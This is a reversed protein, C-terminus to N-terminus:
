GQAAAFFAAFLQTDPGHSPVRDEPHWQVALAFRYGPRELGEVVGDESRASVVLGPAIRAVAQHHRSNVTFSQEGLVTAFVTGALPDVRHVDAVGRQRHFETNPLHQVLDGGFAVNFLQLGRCICLLPLDADLALRLLRLEMADRERDPAETEAAAAQGYLAPDLDNGGGILLADLGEISAPGPPLLPVPELGAYRVAEVYPPLKEDFRYTIGARPRM